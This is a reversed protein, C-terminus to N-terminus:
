FCNVFFINKDCVQTCFRLEAGTVREKNSKESTTLNFSLELVRSLNDEMTINSWSPEFSRIVNASPLTFLDKEFRNYMEMLYISASSNRKYMQNYYLSDNNENESHEEENAGSLYLIVSVYFLSFFFKAM